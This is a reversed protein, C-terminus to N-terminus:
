LLPNVLLLTNDIILLRSVRFEKMKAEKTICDVLLMCFISHLIYLLIRTTVYTVNKSPQSAYPLIGIEVSQAESVTTLRSGGNYNGSTSLIRSVNRFKGLYSYRTHSRSHHVYTNSIFVDSGKQSASSIITRNESDGISRHHTLRLPLVLLLRLRCFL